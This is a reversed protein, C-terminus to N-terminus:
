EAFARPNPQAYREGRSVFTEHRRFVCQKIAGDELKGINSSTGACSVTAVVLSFHPVRWRKLPGDIAALIHNLQVGPQAGFASAKGRENVFFSALSKQPMEGARILVFHDTLCPHPTLFIISPAPRSPFRFNAYPMCQSWTTPSESIEWSNDTELIASSTTGRFSRM